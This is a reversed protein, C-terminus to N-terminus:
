ITIEQKLVSEWHTYHSELYKIGFLLRQPNDKAHGLMINCTRCLVGRIQGSTHCHDIHQNRNGQTTLGCCDCKTRARLEVIHDFTTNFRKADHTM